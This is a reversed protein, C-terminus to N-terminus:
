SAAGGETECGFARGVLGAARMTGEMAESLRAGSAAGTRELRQNIKNLEHVAWRLEFVAREWLATEQKSLLRGGTLANLIFYRNISIGVSKARERIIAMEEVTLRVSICTQARKVRVM